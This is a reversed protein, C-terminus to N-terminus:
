SDLTLLLYVYYAITGGYVLAIFPLLSFSKGVAEKKDPLYNYNPVFSTQSIVLDSAFSKLADKQRSLIYIGVGVFLAVTIVLPLIGQPMPTLGVLAMYAFITEGGAKNGLFTIILFGLVLVGVTQIIGWLFNGYFFSVALHAVLAIGFIVLNRDFTLRSLKKVGYATLAYLFIPLFTFIITM